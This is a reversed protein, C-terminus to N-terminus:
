NTEAPPIDIFHWGATERHQSRVDDAWSAVDDLHHSGEQSLLQAVQAANAPTLHAEAIDAVIAHDGHM